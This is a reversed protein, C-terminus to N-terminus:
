NVTGKTGYYKGGNIWPAAKLLETYVSSSASIVHYHYIKDNPYDETASVHGNYADLVSTTIKVGNEYPGYVPFGDLLFGMFSSNGYTATLFKPEYHYHYQAGVNTPTPHGLYQDANNIELEDLLAGVGNYQNFYVVGNRAVGIPGGTTSSHTSSVVPYRPFRFTLNQSLLDPDSLFGNLNIQTSFSANDGNYAEYKANTTAFFPSKHDPVDTTKVVITTQSSTDISTVNYMKAYLRSFNNTTTGDTGASSGSSSSSESDTTTTKKCSYVLICIALIPYIAKKM